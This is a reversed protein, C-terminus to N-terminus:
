NKRLVFVGIMQGDTERYESYQMVYCGDYEKHNMTASLLAEYLEREKEIGARIVRMEM